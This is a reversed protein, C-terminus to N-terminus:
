FNLAKEELISGMNLWHSKKRQNKVLPPKTTEQGLSEPDVLLLGVGYM